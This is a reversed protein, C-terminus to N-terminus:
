KTAGDHTDNMGSNSNRNGDQKEAQKSRINPEGDSRLHTPLETTRKFTKKTELKINESM